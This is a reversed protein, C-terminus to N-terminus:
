QPADSVGPAVDDMLLVGRDDDGAGNPQQAQVHLRPARGNAQFQLLLPAWTLRYTSKELRLLKM